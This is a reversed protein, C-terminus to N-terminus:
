IRLRIRFCLNSCVGAFYIIKERLASVTRPPNESTFGSEKLIRWLYADPPTLDPFPVPVPLRRMHFSEYIPLLVLTSNSTSKM